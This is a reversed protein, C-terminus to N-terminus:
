NTTKTTDASLFIDDLSIQLFDAIAIAKDCRMEMPNEEWRRYTNVHVGCVKAMTEQSVGRARRWADLSLQM